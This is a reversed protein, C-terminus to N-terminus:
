IEIVTFYQMLCGLPESDRMVDRHEMYIRWDGLFQHSIKVPFKYKINDLKIVHGASFPCHLQDLQKMVPYWVELPDLLSACFDRLPKDILTPRWEGREMRESHFYVPYPAVVDTLFTFNGNIIIYGDDDFDFQVNSFDMEYDYGPCGHMEQLDPVIKLEVPFALLLLYLLKICM